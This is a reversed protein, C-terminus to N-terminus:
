TRLHIKRQILKPILALSGGITPSYGRLLAEAGACDASSTEENKEAADAVTPVVRGLKGSLVGDKVVGGYANLVETPTECPSITEESKATLVYEGTSPDRRAFTVAIGATVGEGVNNVKMIVSAEPRTSVETEVAGTGETVNPVGGPHVLPEMEDKAISEELRIKPSIAARNVIM